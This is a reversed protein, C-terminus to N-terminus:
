VDGGGEPAPENAPAADSAQKEESAQKEKALVTKGDRAKADMGKADKGKAVYEAEKAPKEDPTTRV